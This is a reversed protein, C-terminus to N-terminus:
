LLKLCEEYVMDVTIAENAEKCHPCDYTSGCPTKEHEYKIYTNGEYSISSEDILGGCIVVMPIKLGGTIHNLFGEYGVAGSAFTIIAVSLRVNPSYINTVNQLDPDKYEGGPHLRVLTVHESLKNALEQYKHFGWDKNKSYFSSKFDPSILFFRDTIGLENLTHIALKIEEETLKVRYPKPNYARFVQRRGFETTEKKEEYYDIHVDSKENTDRANVSIDGDNSLWPVNYFFPSSGGVCTPRITKGTRKHILEAEGLFMIDDGLGM